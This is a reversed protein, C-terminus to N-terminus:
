LRLLRLDFEFPEPTSRAVSAFDRHRPNLLYNLETTIVASPVELVPSTRSKLWEDGLLQLEPPAPYSRWHRPLRSRDLRTVLAEEFSCAILVYAPLTAPRGLHVLMELAALAPSGATYVM